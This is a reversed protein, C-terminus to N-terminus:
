AQPGYVSVKHITGSVCVGMSTKSYILLVEKIMHSFAADAKLWGLIGGFTNWKVNMSTKNMGVSSQYYNKLEKM